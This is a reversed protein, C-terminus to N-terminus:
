LTLAAPQELLERIRGLLLAADAGYLVRHDCALTLAMRDGAVIEEGQVVPRREVAGVALIATQPPNIIATFAHVGFM